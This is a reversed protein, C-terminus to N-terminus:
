DPRNKKYGALLCDLWNELETDSKKVVLDPKTMGLALRQGRANAIEFSLWSGSTVFQVQIEGLLNKALRDIRSKQMECSSQQMADGKVNM